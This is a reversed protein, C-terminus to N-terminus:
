HASSPFLPELDAYVKLINNQKKISWTQIDVNQTCTKPFSLFLHTLRVFVSVAKLRTFHKSHVM